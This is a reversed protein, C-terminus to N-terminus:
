WSPRYVSHTNSPAQRRTKLPFKYKLTVLAQTYTPRLNSLIAGELDPFAVTMQKQSCLNVTFDLGIVCVSTVQFEAGLGVVGGPFWCTRSPVVLRTLSNHQISMSMCTMMFGGKVYCFMRQILPGFRLRTSWYGKNKFRLKEEFAM